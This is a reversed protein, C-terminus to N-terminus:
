RGGIFFEAPPPPELGDNTKSFARANGTIELRNGTGGGISDAYENLRPGSGTSQRILVRVVNGDGPSVGPAASLAGFLALDSASPDAATQIHLGILQLDIRNSSSPGSEAFFRQGGRALIGSLFGDITDDKSHMRLVNSTSPATPFAPSGAGGLLNWGLGAEVSENVYLNRRSDIRVRSGTVAEPRSVGGSAIVGGGIVNRELDLDISSQSAFNISFVGAGGGPSHVVSLAMRVSLNSGEHAPPDQGLNPNRTVAVLSAGTPGPPAIGNANPNILECEDVRASVSDGPARSLVAILNGSRDAVDEIALNRVTVGDGLTLIDGALAATARILTRGSVEFGGPLGSGDFTMVGEGELTAGDPVTLATSVDYEGATVLIRAGENAPVLAAALEAATTVVIDPGHPAAALRAGESGLSAVAIAAITVLKRIELVHHRTSTTSM